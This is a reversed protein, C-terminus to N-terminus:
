PENGGTQSSRRAEVAHRRSNGFETQIANLIAKLQELGATSLRPPCDKSPLVLEFTAGGGKSTMVILQEADTLPLVWGNWSYESRFIFAPGGWMAKIADTHNAYLGFFALPDKKEIQRMFDVLEVVNRIPTSDAKEYWGKAVRIPRINKLLLRANQSNM